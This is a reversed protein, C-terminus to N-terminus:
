LERVAEGFVAFLGLVHHLFRVRFREFPKRRKLFAAKVYESGVELAFM